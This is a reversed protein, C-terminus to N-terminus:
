SEVRVNILYIGITSSFSFIVCSVNSCCYVTMIKAQSSYCEIKQTYSFIYALSDSNELYSCFNNETNKIKLGVKPM